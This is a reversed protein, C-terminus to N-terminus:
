TNELEHHEGIVENEVCAVPAIQASLSSRTM